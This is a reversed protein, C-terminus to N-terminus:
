QLIDSEYCYKLQSIISELGFSINESKGIVTRNEYWHLVLMKIALVYLEINYSVKVGANELYMEASQILTEILVDDYDEDIRLYSKIETIITEENM